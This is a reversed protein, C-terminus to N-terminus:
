HEDEASKLRAALPYRWSLHAFIVTAGLLNGGLLTVWASPGLRATSILATMMTFGVEFILFIFIVGFILSPTHRAGRIASIIVVCYAINLLYHMVTFGAIGGLLQFTRFPQGAILDVTAVWGWIITAVVIGLAIGEVAPGRRDLGAISVAPRTAREATQTHLSHIIAKMTTVGTLSNRRPDTAPSYDADEGSWVVIM